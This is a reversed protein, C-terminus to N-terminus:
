PPAKETDSICTELSKSLVMPSIWREKSFRVFFWDSSKAAHLGCMGDVFVAVVFPEGHNAVVRTWAKKDIGVLIQHGAVPIRNKEIRATALNKRRDKRSDAGAEIRTPYM